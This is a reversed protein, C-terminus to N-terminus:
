YLLFKSISWLSMNEFFLLFSYSILRVGGTNELAQMIGLMAAILFVPEWNIKQYAEEM